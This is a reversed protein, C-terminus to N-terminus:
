RTEKLIRKGCLTILASASSNYHVRLDALGQRATWWLGAFVAQEPGHDQALEKRSKM